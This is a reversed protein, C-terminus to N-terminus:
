RVRNVRDEDAFYRIAEILSEPLKNETTKTM